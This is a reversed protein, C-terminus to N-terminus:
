VALSDNSSFSPGDENENILCVAVSASGVALLWTTHLIELCFKAHDKRKRM